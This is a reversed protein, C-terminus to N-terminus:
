VTVCIDKWKHTHYMKTKFMLQKFISVLEYEEKMEQCVRALLVPQDQFLGDVRNPKPELRDMKLFVRCHSVYFGYANENFKLECREATPLQL